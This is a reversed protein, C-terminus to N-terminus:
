KILSVTKEFKEFFDDLKIVNVEISKSDMIDNNNQLSSTGFNGNEEQLLYNHSKGKFGVAHNHLFLNDCSNQLKNENLIKFIKPNPEFAHGEINEKVAIPLATTGVNAGIDVYITNPRYKQFIFTLIKQINRIIYFKKIM